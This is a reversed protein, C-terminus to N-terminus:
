TPNISLVQTLEGRLMANEKELEQARAQEEECKKRWQTCELTLKEVL